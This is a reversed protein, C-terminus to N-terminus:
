LGLIELWYGAMCVSSHAYDASLNTKIRNKYQIYKQPAICFWKPLLDLWLYSEAMNTEYFYSVHRSFNSVATILYALCFVSWPRVNANCMVEVWVCLIIHIFNVCFCIGGYRITLQLQLFLLFERVLRLLERGSLECFLFSGVWLKWM